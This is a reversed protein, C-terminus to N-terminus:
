KVRKGGHENALIWAAITGISIENAEYTSLTIGASGRQANGLVLERAPDAEVPRARTGANKAADGAVLREGGDGRHAPRGAFVVRRAPRAM